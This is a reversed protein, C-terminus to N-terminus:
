VAGYQLEQGEITFGCPVHYGLQERCNGSRLQEIRNAMAIPNKVGILEVESFGPATTELIVDGYGFLYGILGQTVQISRIELYRIRSNKGRKVVGSGLKLFYDKGFVYTGISFRRVAEAVVTLPVLSVVIFRMDLISIETFTRIVGVAFALSLGFLFAFPVLSRLSRAVVIFSRSRPINHLFIREQVKLAEM